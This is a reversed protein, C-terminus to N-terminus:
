DGSTGNTKFRKRLDWAGLDKCQLDFKPWDKSVEHRIRWTRGRPLIATTARKPKLSEGKRRLWEAAMLFQHFDRGTMRTEIPVERDNWVHLAAWLHAVPRFRPWIHRKLNEIGGGRQRHKRYAEDVMRFADGLSVQARTAPQEARFVMWGLMIGALSGGVASVEAAAKVSERADPADALNLTIRGNVSIEHTNGFRRILEALKSRTDWAAIASALQAHSVEDDPYAMLGFLHLYDVVVVDVSGDQPFDIVESPFIIDPLVLWWRVRCGIGGKSHSQTLYTIALFLRQSAPTNLDDPPMTRRTTPLPRRSTTTFDNTVIQACSM